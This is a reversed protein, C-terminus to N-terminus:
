IVSGLDLSGGNSLNQWGLLRDSAISTTCTVSIERCALRNNDDASAICGGLALGSIALSMFLFRNESLM